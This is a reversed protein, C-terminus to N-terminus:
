YLVLIVVDPQLQLGQNVLYLYEQATGWGRVGANLAEVWRGAGDLREALVVSLTAAEDVEAGEVFSDGLILVRAQGPPRTSSVEPGRLGDRNFRVLTTFEPDRIW